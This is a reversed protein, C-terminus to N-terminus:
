MDGRMLHEIESHYDKSPETEKTKITVIVSVIDESEEEDCEAIEKIQDITVQGPVVVLHRLESSKEIPIKIGNDDIRDYESEGEFEKLISYILHKDDRADHCEISGYEGGLHGLKELVLETHSTTPPAIHYFVVELM